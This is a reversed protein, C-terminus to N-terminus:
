KHQKRRLVVRLLLELGMQSSSDNTIKKIADHTNKEKVSLHSTNIQLYFFYFEFLSLLLSFGSGVLFILSNSFWSLKSCHKSAANIRQNIRNTARVGSDCIVLQTRKINDSVGDMDRPVLNM